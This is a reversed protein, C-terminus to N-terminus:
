VGLQRKLDEVEARLDGLQQEVQTQFEVMENRYEQLQGRLQEAEAAIAAVAGAGPVSTEQAAAAAVRAASEDAPTEETLHGGSQVAGSGFEARLKDLERPKYLNHTVVCGRGSPTLYVILKKAELAALIPRLAGVDAIPEMRAARGRLEGITQAGRLLLETMVALEVKEVGLWPYMLHRHKPARGDGQVEVAAGLLRLHELAEEVQHEELAMVPFRNSKQNCGTRLANLTLPYQDPTTKAKEVLVGLVRREVSNLPQWKPAEAGGSSSDAVSTARDSTPFNTM